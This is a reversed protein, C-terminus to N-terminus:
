DAPSVARAFEDAPLTNLVDDRRLRARRAMAVAFELYDLADTSHADVSLVFRAGRDRAQRARVPDLDLRRPDGNIEIAGPAALLAELVEDFRCAVPDRSGILRGLAHGWIKFRPHGLATVLRHTMDDEGQKFRQHISAIVVDLRALIEDPYDLAGDARIDSETGRLLRVPVRREVEAIERWQERLREIEVGGAYHASPSHDTITLYALGREEAARAMGEVSATGDSYTTHCHVAGRVDAATVLDSFDGAAAADIEDTGDRLEPPVPALGLARYIADEDPAAVDVLSRGGAAARAALLALHPEPGTAALLAAGFAAPPALHVECTAGGTMRAVLRGSPDPEVSAVMPHARLRDAAAAPDGTGVALALRDCLEIWRRAPGAARADSVGPAGRLHAALSEGLARAEAVRLPGAGAAGVGPWKERLRELLDVMGRRHLEEVVRALSAGIGPLETVRDERILRPLDHAAEVSAAGRRYARARYRDGERELLAAIERMAAGITVPDM